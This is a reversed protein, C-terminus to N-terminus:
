GGKKPPGLPPGGKANWPIAIYECDSEGFSLAHGQAQELAKEQAAEVTDTQLDVEAKAAIKYVHLHVKM